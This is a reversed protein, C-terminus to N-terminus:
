VELNNKEQEFDWDDQYKHLITVGAMLRSALDDLFEKQANTLAEANWSPTGEFYDFSTRVHMNPVGYVGRAYGRYFFLNKLLNEFDDRPGWYEWKLAGEGYSKFLSLDNISQVSYAQRKLANEKQEQGVANSWISTSTGGIASAIGTAGGVVMGIGAPTGAGSAILSAGGAISLASALISGLGSFVSTANGVALKKKDYNYGNRLYDFWASSYLPMENNRDSAILFPYDEKINRWSGSSPKAKFILSSSISSSPVFDITVEYAGEPLNEGGFSTSYSDYVLKYYSFESSSLKPDALMATAKTATPGPKRKSLLGASMTLTATISNSDLDTFRLYVGGKRMEFDGQGLNGRYPIEVIKALDSATRDIDAFDQTLVPEPNEMVDSSNVSGSYAPAGDQTSAVFDTKSSPNVTGVSFRPGLKLTSSDGRLVLQGYNISTVPDQTIEFCVIYSTEGDATWHGSQGNSNFEVSITDSPSTEYRIGWGHLRPDNGIFMKDDITETLVHLPGTAPIGGRAVAYMAPVGKTDNRYILYTPTTPFTGESKKVIEGSVGESVPDVIASGNANWRNVLARSIYTRDSLWGEWPFTNISDLRLSVELTSDAIFHFSTVFYYWDYSSDGNSYTLCAYNYALGSDFSVESEEDSIPLRITLERGPYTRKFDEFVRSSLELGGLYDRINEVRLNRAPDIKTQGYLRVKTLYM